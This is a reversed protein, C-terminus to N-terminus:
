TNKQWPIQIPMEMTVAFCTLAGRCQFTSRLDLLAAWWMLYVRRRHAIEASSPRVNCPCCKSKDYVVVGKRNRRPHDLWANKDFSKAEVEKARTGYRNTHTEVPYFRPQADPMWDPVRGARALEAVLIATTQGGCGEPLVALADAVLDADPHPESRGGGDVRCGLRAQEIMHYEPSVKPFSRIDFGSDRDFDITAFEKQFAWELLQQISISRKVLSSQTTTRQRDIMM